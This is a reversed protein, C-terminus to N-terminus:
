MFYILLSQAPLVPPRPKVSGSVNKNNLCYGLMFKYKKCRRRHPSLPWNKEVNDYCTIITTMNNNSNYGCSIIMM